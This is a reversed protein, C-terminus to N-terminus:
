RGEEASADREISMWAKIVEAAVQPVISNGYGKLRLVRAKAKQILPSVFGQGNEDRVLGLSDSLGPALREPAPEVARSKGDRCALWVANSWYSEGSGAFSGNGSESGREPRGPLLSDALESSDGGREVTERAQTGVERPQIPGISGRKELGAGCRRAVFWLRQRIHPAGVSGIASLPPRESNEESGMENQLSQIGTADKGHTNLEDKRTLEDGIRADECCTRETEPAGMHGYRCEDGLMSNQYQRICVREFQGGQRPECLEVRKIGNRYTSISCDGDIRMDHEGSQDSDRIYTGGSRVSDREECGKAQGGSDSPASFPTKQPQTCVATRNRPEGSTESQSRCEQTRPEGCAMESSGCQSMASLNHGESIRANEGTISVGNDTERHRMKQMDAYNSTGVRTKSNELSSVFWLRQRIHPAGVGCAPIVFAALDYGEGALDDQVLDLWGHGIAASVQEGFILDPRCERILHFWAPWLHREDTVGSGKGASSFPQCPCSGTWVERDGPIGALKLAPAWGGIGAFFHCQTFGRLDGPRVDWISREDVEGAPIQGDAILERLWAAAGPDIENYYNM